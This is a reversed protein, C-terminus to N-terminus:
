FHFTFNLEETMSSVNWTHLPRQPQHSGRQAACICSVARVGSPRTYQTIESSLVSYTSPSPHSSSSTTCVCHLHPLLNETSMEACGPPLELWFIIESHRSQSCWARSFCLHITLPLEQGWSLWLLAFVVFVYSLVAKTCTIIGSPFIMLSSHPHEKIEHFNFILIM